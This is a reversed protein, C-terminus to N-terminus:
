ALRKLPKCLPLASEHGQLLFKCILLRRPSTLVLWTLDFSLSISFPATGFPSEHHLVQLGRLMDGELWGRSIPRLPPGPLSGTAKNLGQAQSRRSHLSHLRGTIRKSTTQPVNQM